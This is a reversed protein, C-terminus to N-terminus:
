LITASLQLHLHFQNNCIWRSVTLYSGSVKVHANGGTRRSGQFYLGNHMTEPVKMGMWREEEAVSVM